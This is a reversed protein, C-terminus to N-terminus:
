PIRPIRLAQRMQNLEEKSHWPGYVTTGQNQCIANWIRGEFTSCLERRWVCANLPYATCHGQNAANNCLHTLEHIVANSRLWKMQEATRHGNDIASENVAGLAARWWMSPTMFTRHYQGVDPPPAIRAIDELQVGGTGSDSMTIIVTRRTEFRNTRAATLQWQRQQLDPYKFHLTWASGGSGLTRPPDAEIGETASYGLVMYIGANTFSDRVYQWDVKTLLDSGNLGDVWVWVADPKPSANLNLARRVRHDRYSAVHEDKAQMVFRYPGGETM